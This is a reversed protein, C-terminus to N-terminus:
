EVVGATPCTQERTSPTGLHSTGRRREELVGGGEEVTVRGGVDSGGGELVGSGM